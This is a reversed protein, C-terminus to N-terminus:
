QIPMFSVKWIGTEDLIMQFGSKEGPIVEYEIYGEYDSIQVFRGHELNKYQALIQEKTGRDKEPIQEDEKKSWAVHGKRQTYLLYAVDHDAEFRSFVYLKAVSKPDLNQLASEDLDQKLSEYVSKENQNLQFTLNPPSDVSKNCGLM